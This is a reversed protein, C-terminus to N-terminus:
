RFAVINTLVTFLIKEQNQVWPRVENEQKFMHLLYRWSVRKYIKYNIKYITSKCYISNRSGTQHSVHALVKQCLIM